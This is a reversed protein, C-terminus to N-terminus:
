INKLITHPGKRFIYAAYNIIYLRFLCLTYPNIFVNKFKIRPSWYFTQLTVKGYIIKPIHYVCFGTSYICAYRAEFFYSLSKYKLTIPSVSNGGAM